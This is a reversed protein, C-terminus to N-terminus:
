SMPIATYVYRLIMQMALDLYDKLIWLIKLPSIYLSFLLPGLVFGQPVGLKMPYSKSSAGNISVVQERQSLNSEIWTLVKCSIGIRRELRDILCVELSSDKIIPNCMPPQCKNNTSLQRSRPPQKLIHIIHISILETGPKNTTSILGSRPTDTEPSEM